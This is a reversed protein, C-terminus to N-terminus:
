FHLLRDGHHYDPGINVLSAVGEDGDVLGAAFQVLEGDFGTIAARLAM